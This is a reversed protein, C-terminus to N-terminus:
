NEAEDAGHSRDTGIRSWEELRWNKYIFYLVQLKSYVV